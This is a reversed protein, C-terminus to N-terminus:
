DRSGHEIHGVVTSEVEQRRAQRELVAAVSHEGSITHRIDGGSSVRALVNLTDADERHFAALSDLAAVLESGFLPVSPDLNFIMEPAHLKRTFVFKDVRHTEPQELCPGFLRDFEKQEKIQRKQITKKYFEKYHAALSEEKLLPDKDDATFLEEHKFYEKVTAKLCCIPYFM